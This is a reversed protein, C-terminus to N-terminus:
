RVTGNSEHSVTPLSRRHLDQEPAAKRSSCSCSGCQKRWLRLTSQVVYAAAVAICGAVVLWQWDM